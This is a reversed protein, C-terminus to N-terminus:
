PPERDVVWAARGAPDEPAEWVGAVFLYPLLDRELTFGVLATSDDSLSGDFGLVVPTGEELEYDPVALEAFAELEDRELWADAARHPQNLWYRRSDAPDSQPDRIEAMIRGVDLWEAAAGYVDVIASELEDDDNLDVPPAERHDVFVGDDVLEGAVIRRWTRM